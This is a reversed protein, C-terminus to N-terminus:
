RDSKLAFWLYQSLVNTHKSPSGNAVGMPLESRDTTIGCGITFSNGLLTLPGVHVICRGVVAAVLISGAIAGVETVIVVVVVVALGVVCVVDLMVLPVVVLVCVVCVGSLVM